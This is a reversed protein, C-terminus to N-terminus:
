RSVLRAQRTSRRATHTHADYSKLVDWEGVLYDHFNFSPSSSSPAPDASLAVGALLSLLVVGITLRASLM